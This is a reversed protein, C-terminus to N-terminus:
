HHWDHMSVHSGGGVQVSSDTPKIILKAREAMKPSVFTASAGTDVLITGSIDGIRGSYMLSLHCSTHTCLHAPLPSDPAPADYLINVPWPIGLTAEARGNPTAWNFVRDHPAFKQICTTQQRLEQYWSTKSMYNWCPLCFCASLKPYQRKLHLYHKVFKGARDFPPNIWLVETGTVPTWTLFSSNPSCFPKCLANDGTDNCCCDMTFTKGIHTQVREFHHRMIARDERQFWFKERLRPPPQAPSGDIPTPKNSPVVVKVRTHTKNLNKPHLPSSPHHYRVLGKPKPSAHKQLARRLAPDLEQGLPKDLIKHVRPNSINARSPVLM